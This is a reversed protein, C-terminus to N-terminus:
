WRHRRWADPMYYLNGGPWVQKHGNKKIWKVIMEYWADFQEADYCYQISKYTFSGSFDPTRHWYVRGRSQASSRLPDRSYELTPGQGVNKLYFTGVTTPLIEPKWTGFSKNWITFQADVGFKSSRSPLKQLYIEPETPATNRLLQVDGISCVYDLFVAEDAETFAVAIQRGWTM